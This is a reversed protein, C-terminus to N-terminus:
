VDSLSMMDKAVINIYKYNLLQFIKCLSKKKCNFIWITYLYVPAAQMIHINIVLYLMREGLVM